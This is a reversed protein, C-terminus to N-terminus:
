KGPRPDARDLPNWTVAQLLARRWIDLADEPGFRRLLSGWDWTRAVLESAAGRATPRLAGGEVAKMMLNWGNIHKKGDGTQIQRCFAVYGLLHGRRLGISPIRRVAELFGCQVPDWGPANELVSRSSPEKPAGPGLTGALDAALWADLSPYEERCPRQKKRNAMSVESREPESGRDLQMPAM